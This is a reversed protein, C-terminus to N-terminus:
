VAAFTEQEMGGSEGECVSGGRSRSGGDDIISAGAPRPDGTGEGLGGAPRGDEALIKLSDRGSGLRRLEGQAAQIAASAEGELKSVAQEAAKVCNEPTLSDAIGQLYKRVNSIM